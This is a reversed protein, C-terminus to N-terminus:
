KRKFWIPKGSLCQRCHSCAGSTSQKGADTPCHVMAQLQPNEPYTDSMYAFSINTKWVSNRDLVEPMVARLFNVSAEENVPDMSLYWTVNPLGAMVPVTFLARSYGWFKIQGDFSKMAQALDCAYALDPCDGSWHIRYYPEKGVDGVRKRRQHWSEAFRIFEAAFLRQRRFGTVSMLLETNHRLVEGVAPRFNITRFVYCSPLQRGNELGLCGGHGCTAAPCTGGMELPGPLLGFTNRNGSYFRTKSDCTPIIQKM